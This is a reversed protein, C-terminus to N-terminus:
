VPIEKYLKRYKKNDTKKVLGDELWRQLTKSAYSLDNAVGSSVLTETTLEEPLSAYAERIKTSRKRPVFNSREREQAEMVMEGFMHMQAMLCWDGILRAFELDSDTVSLPSNLISFQSNHNSEDKELKETNGEESNQESKESGEGKPSPNPTLSRMVIRVLTYRMMIVPIRKRFYDLCLDQELRAEEALKKEYEYCFDVLRDCKLEGQVQELKLGISRLYAEREHDRVAHRREIMAFDNQPMPFLAFRTVLGDLVTSPKIKRSMAEQTGSVVQNWNIQIVGNVSQDNAYDVGAYENHFSKLELDLKGAWSGTQARLATALEPECTYCHLHLPQGTPDFAQRDIADTLRRYLMANSITSPLYRIVPHQQEPAEAKANKSSAARKKMEEKYQREWERGVRDAALMPAMILRDLDVIFSKGSAASGVVYVLFSLRYDKGDFHEWWCRSLYTGLMAGAVLVGALRHHEPLQSVAERYGPADSLLPELRHWWAEYDITAAKRSAPDAGTDALQIGVAALVNQMRKPMTRYRQLACADAAIRQIEDTGRETAIARGVECEALVRALLQPDFDTIYRLDCALRYLSQHRDGTTPVGKCVLEFWKQCIKEFAIGHYAEGRGGGLPPPTAGGNPSDTKSEGLSSSHEGILNRVKNRGEGESPSPPLSKPQPYAEGRYIKGFKEDYKKNEYTFLKDKNIYLLDEFGPCFSGRSADKCSEDLKFGLRKALWAQNEALNGREIDAEAVLRLGDNSSTIHVLRIGLSCCFAERQMVPDAPLMDENDAVYEDVWQQFLQRPTLPVREGQSNTAAYQQSIHDIDVMYLGNLHVGDQLRWKGLQGKKRLGDKSEKPAPLVDFHSACFCILPLQRKNLDAAKPKDESRFRRVNGILRNVDNSVVLQSFLESTLETCESSYKPQYCFM